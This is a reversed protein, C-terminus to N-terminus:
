KEDALNIIRKSLKKAYQISKYAGGSEHQICCIVLDARDIM